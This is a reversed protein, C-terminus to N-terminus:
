YILEAPFNGYILDYYVIFFLIFFIKFSAHLRYIDVSVATMAFVWVCVCVASLFYNFFFLSYFVARIIERRTSKDKFVKVEFIHM